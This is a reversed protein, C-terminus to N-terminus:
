DEILGGLSDMVGRRYKKQLLRTVPGPVGDGVARGDVEIIPVIEKVSGSLFAEEAGCTNSITFPTQRTPIGEAEAVSLVASRTRGALLGLNLPPTLLEGDMVLFVNSTAGELVQNDADVLLAEQCGSAHALRLATVTTLYNLSKLHPFIGRTFGSRM